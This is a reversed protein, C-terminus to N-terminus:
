NYVEDFVDSSSSSKVVQAGSQYRVFANEPLFPLARLGFPEWWGSQQAALPQPILGARAAAGPLLRTVVILTIITGAVGILVPKLNPIHM